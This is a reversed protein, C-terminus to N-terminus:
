ERNDRALISLDSLSSLHSEETLGHPNSYHSKTTGIRVAEANMASIFLDLPDTASAKESPDSSPTLRAVFHEALAVSMDNGLPLMLGYLAERVSVTEGARIDSTSGQTEDARVSMTLTEDLIEPHQEAHRLVLWATMIKTTSAFDRPTEAEHGGIVRGDAADVVIWADSSVFPPGDLPKLRPAKACQIDITNSANRNTSQNIM